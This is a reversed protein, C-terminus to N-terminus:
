VLRLQECWAAARQPFVSVQSCWHEHWDPAWQVKVEQAPLHPPSGIGGALSVRFTVAPCHSCAKLQM